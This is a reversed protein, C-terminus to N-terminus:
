VENNFPIFRINSFSNFVGGLYGLTRRDIEMRLSNFIDNRYKLYVRYKSRQIAYDYYWSIRSEPLGKKIMKQLKTRWTSNAFAVQRQLDFYCNEIIESYKM